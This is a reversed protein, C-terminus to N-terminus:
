RKCIISQYVFLCCVIISNYYYQNILVIIEFNAVFHTKKLSITNASITCPVRYHLIRRYKLLVVVALIFALGTAEFPYANVHSVIWRVIPPILYSRAGEITFIDKTTVLHCSSAVSVPPTPPCM